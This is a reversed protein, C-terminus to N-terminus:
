GAPKLAIVRISGDTKWTGGTATMGVSLPNPPTILQEARVKGAAMLDAGAKDRELDEQGQYFQGMELNM